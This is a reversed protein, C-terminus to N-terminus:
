LHCDICDLKNLKYVVTTEGNNNSVEHCARCDIQAHKGKLPFRTDNHNFKEPLWSNTVHCRTCDTVGSVAFTDGHVNDHCSACKTDLNIFNQSFSNSQAVNEFHCARCSVAEHAGTLPWNTKSHDFTVSTWADNIHCAACNNEPYYKQPIADNHINEHCDVCTSGLNSFQWRADASDESVHCAFCPTAVHAGELPFETKQHDNITFLTFEFGKELSHCEKCDTVVSNETFDGNHYDTHCNTCSSFDIPNSFSETHCARCDLGQHKGELPYDTISHDFFDMNNLSLFSQENHCKACDQGFKDNHPDQHCAVCNEEAVTSRDQFVATVNTTNAHCAFCDISKHSGNLDFDTLSHNFNGTGMFIDFGNEVHCQKCQGPLNGNHVDQHCAKCDNFALGSFQQIEKGNQVTTQHCEKCDVLIHKGRLKYDATEHNFKVVPTFGEMNHCQLCDTPLTGQHFDDHCSLCKQDLGLYTDPDNKLNNDTINSSNHCERCDINAHAGELRYGARNHNFNNTDFRVMDFNRGHHESHCEFCNQSKVRTNAHLGRNQNVLSAIENHCDLCKSDSVKAGLDHCLTCNGMGEFKSHANTLDGPSIQATIALACFLCLIISIIKKRLVM